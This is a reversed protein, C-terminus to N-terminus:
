TLDMDQNHSLPLSFYFTAGENEKGEAWVRGGHRQIIRKVIALGIGTGEFDETNHLRQFVGFLKNVYQMDFGVGNDRIFYVNESGNTHGGAEICASDRHKTFKIANALLNVYVQKILNRDGRCPPLQDIQLDIKRDQQGTEMEQLVNRVLAGMDLESVSLNNRGLRSFALLDEILQGMRQANLRIESFQRLTDEDLQDRLKRLIVRAYGDIARLPSRLDHSISYSFSELEKNAAELQATREAIGKEAQRRETIDRIVSVLMRQGGVAAGQSSVEVPFTGGDRRRHVTEFLLGQNDAAAMQGATLDSTEAARLDHITMALLEERTYGYAKAAAANAEMIRGDSRRIFLITDRSHDAILEYRRLIEESRKRETIDALVVRCEPSGDADQGAIGTLHVWFVTGDTKVLRLECSQPGGTKLCEKRKLYYMDQDEGLIFRSFPKKSLASRVAGLLAAATINAELILGEGGLTLYGVPALDYLDFYRAQSAELEVQARRLEENQMELEIQHVQLEHLLRRAEEPTLAELNDLPAASEAAIKEAQGRLTLAEGPPDDKKKKKKKKDNNDDDNNM